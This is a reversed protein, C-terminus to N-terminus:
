WIGLSQIASEIKTKADEFSYAVICNYDQKSLYDIWKIQNESLKGGVRKMEIFTRLSPIFLDPVGASLGEVKLRAATVVNRNGGNPISFIWHEPHTKRFWSVFERQEESESIIRM